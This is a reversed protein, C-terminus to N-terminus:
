NDLFNTIYTTISYSKAQNRENWEIYVTLQRTDIDISGGGLVIDDNSDRRVENFVVYRTYKGNIPGPDSSSLTWSTPTSSAVPYLNVDNPQSSINALWSEDRIARTIEIGEQALYLAEQPSQTLNLSTLLLISAQWIGFMAVSIIGVSVILEVLGIGKQSKIM